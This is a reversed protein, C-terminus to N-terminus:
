SGTSGADPKLGLVIKALFVADAWYRPIMRGPEQAIRWLWEAGIRQLWRPARTIHGAVFDFSAGLQVSVPVGLAECHDAMWLEGKPQGLAILLLDPETARIRDLLAAHEEPSIADIMPTEIGVIQLDPYHRQLAEAAQPTVAPAGGLLFVRYGNEAARRALLYILDAGAVREPLPQSGGSSRWVLPMGDAVLFAARRNLERLCPDRDTLMAYHLNATIFYSPRGRAILHDVWDLTDAYTFPALPLGCVWTPTISELQPAEPERAPDERFEVPSKPVLPVPFDGTTDPVPSWESGSIGPIPFLSPNGNSPSM